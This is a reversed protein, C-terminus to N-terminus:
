FFLGAFFDPHWDRRRALLFGAIRQRLSAGLRQIERQTAGPRLSEDFSSPSARVLEDRKAPDALRAHVAEYDACLLGFGVPDVPEMVTRLRQLPTLALRAQVWRGKGLGLTSSAGLLCLLGAFTLLRSGALKAQRLLWADDAAHDFRFDQWAAYAHAYRQLDHLLFGWQAEPVRGVKGAAYWRLVERQLKRLAPAPGLPQADLLLAMRRGFAAPSEQLSGRGASPCLQSRPLVDRYIGQAKPLALGLQAALAFVPALAASAATGDEAVAVLDFDSAQHAERRGLSGVAALTVGGPLPGLAGLETRLATLLRRSAAWSAALAPCEAAPFPPQTSKM